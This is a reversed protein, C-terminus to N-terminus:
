AQGNCASESGECEHREKRIGAERWGDVWVKQHVKRDVDM